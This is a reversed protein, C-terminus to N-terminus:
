SPKRFRLAFKDTHGRVKPDFVELKPDDDTRHLVDTEGAYEFGAQEVQRKVLAPDIRHLRATQEITTGPAAKHDIVVYTGGPKLMAFVAKNLVSPDLSGMFEAPYDHYNMSTFVVDVPEPARLEPTPLIQVTVNSYAPTKATAQLSQVNGVSYRAYQQPWVAYVHGSPGVVKSLVRTWYGTGPILEFVKDGPKASSFAIIQAPHRRADDGRQGERGKDAVAAAVYDPIKGDWAAQEPKSGQRCASTSLLLAAAVVYTSKM